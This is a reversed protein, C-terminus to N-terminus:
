YKIELSLRHNGISDTVVTSIGFSYNIGLSVKKVLKIGYYGFGLNVSNKNIGFRLAITRFNLYTEAGVAYFIKTGTDGWFQDRYRLEIGLSLDELYLKGLSVDGFNYVSGLQVTSPVNDVENEVVAINPKIIDKVVFGLSLKDKLMKYIVGFDASVAQQSSNTKLKPEYYLIENNFNYSKTLLKLNLGLQISPLGTYIKRITNGVSLIFISETYLNNVNMMGYGCGLSVIKIPLVVAFNSFNFDVDEVGLFPKCYYLQICNQEVAAIGAPNYFIGQPEDSVATFVGGM